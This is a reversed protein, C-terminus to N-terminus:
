TNRIISHVYEPKISWFPFSSYKDEVIGKEYMKSSMWNYANIFEPENRHGDIIMNDNPHVSYGNSLLQICSTPQVPLIIM